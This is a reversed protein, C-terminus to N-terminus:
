VPLLCSRCVHTDRCLQVKADHLAQVLEPALSGMLPPAQCRRWAPLANHTASRRARTLPPLPARWGIGPSGPATYGAAQATSGMPFPCVAPLRAAAAMVAATSVWLHACECTCVAGQLVRRQSPLVAGCHGQVCPSLCGAALRGGPPTAAETVGGPRPTRRGSGTAARRALWPPPPPPCRAPEPPTNHGGGTQEGARQQVGLADPSRGSQRKPHSVARSHPAADCCQRRKRQTHGQDRWERWARDKLPPATQQAPASVGPGSERARPVCVLHHAVSGRRHPQLTPGRERPHVQRRRM